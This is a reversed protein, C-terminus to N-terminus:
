SRNFINFSGNTKHGNPSLSWFQGYIYFVETISRYAGIIWKAVSKRTPAKAVSDVVGGGNFMWKEWQETVERKIPHNSGVSSVKRRGTNSFGPLCSIPMTIYMVVDCVDGKTHSQLDLFILM